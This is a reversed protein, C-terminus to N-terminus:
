SHLPLYIEAVLKAPGILLPRQRSLDIALKGGPVTVTVFDHAGKSYSYAAATAGTGCAQTYGEVGREFTLSDLNQKKRKIYFTVNTGSQKFQTLSRTKNVIDVLKGVNKELDKTLHSVDFVAHPVGSNIVDFNLSNKNIKINNKAHGIVAVSVKPMEVCILRTGDVSQQPLVTILIDGALTELRIPSKLYPNVDALYAGVCRAANGCMEAQSGDANYFDWKLDARRSNELFLLGDAGLSQYPNCLTKALLARRKSESLRGLSKRSGPMYEASRLIRALMKKAKDDRLDIFLFNNGAGTLKFISIM